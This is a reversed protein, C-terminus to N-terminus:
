LEPSQLPIRRTGGAKAIAAKLDPRAKLVELGGGWPPPIRAPAPDYDSLDALAAGRHEPDELRRIFDAAAQDMRGLCLYLTGLTGEADKRHAEAYALDAAAAQPRGARAQACGRALHLAMLGYPTARGEVGELRALTKLADEPHGFRIQMDALNIVQSFNASGAEALRAGASLAKVAEDYRGLLEYSRAAEDWIWPLNRDADTYAGAEAARALVPQLLALAEQPRGLRRLDTAVNHIPDLRDPHREAIARDRALGAEAAARLDFKPPLLPALKPDFMADTLLGPDTITALVTRAGASDGEQALLEAYSYHLGQADGSSEAPAYADAALVGLLRKREGKLGAEKLETNLRFLWQMPTGNLAAGRGQSMAEVTAIAAAYKKGEIELWLRMQWLEDPSDDFRTGNLAHAYAKDRAGTDSACQALITDLAAELKPELKGRRAALLPEGLTLVKRCDGATNAADIAKLAQELQADPGPAAAAASATGLLLAAILGRGLSLGM